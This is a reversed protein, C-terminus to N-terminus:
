PRAGRESEFSLSLRELVADPTTPGLTEGDVVVAPALSCAGICRAVVLTLAGDQTTAGPKVPHAACLAQLIAPGGKIHCVTGLCVICTHRGRPRLRFHHYFTAVGYVKALPVVLTEALYRLSAPELCGFTQQVAHMAEILAQPRHGLRRLAAEVLKWREDQTPPAVRDAASQTM